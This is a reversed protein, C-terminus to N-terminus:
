YSRFRRSPLTGFYGRKPGVKIPIASLANPDAKARLEDSTFETGAMDAISFKFSLLQSPRKIFGEPYQFFLWGSMVKHPELYTGEILRDLLQNEAAPVVLGVATYVYTGNQVLPLRILPAWDTTDTKAAVGISRIM